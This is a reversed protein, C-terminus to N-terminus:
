HPFFQKLNFVDFISNITSLCTYIHMYVKFTSIFSATSSTSGTKSNFQAFSFLLNEKSLFLSIRQRSLTTRWAFSVIFLFCCSCFNLPVRIRFNAENVSQPTQPDIDEQHFYFVHARRCSRKSISHRIYGESLKTRSM